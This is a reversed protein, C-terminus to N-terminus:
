EIRVTIIQYPMYPIAIAGGRVAGSRGLPEELINCFSATKMPLDLKLKATGRAGHCEYLRVIIGRGDEARKITDIVLNADDSSAFSQPAITGPAFLIPSNFRAAEAVTGAERWGGAHPFIAYSFRHRGMDAHEDPHKPARLLSMRMVNDFTAFGYKSESLISVGFGHESLDAWKHFPVEFRALDYPTNYHTPREVNGFQMEYTANMARINVPFAVKLFQHSEHWDVDCHFELRRSAADLRITQKMSSNKGIAYEFAVEARLSSGRKLSAKTAPAVDTETELHYPDVDWADWATPLDEYLKLANGPGDLSERGTSKEILSTLRGARSITARLHANELVFGKPSETASASDPSDAVQGVGYSPVNIFALKGDPQSAVEARSFGITNIPSPETSKSSLAEIARDRLEAGEAEIQAFHQKADDYVLTISSGPLIDHFQNLLLTKWLNDIDASPYEKAFGRAGALTCLFEVDHLLLESKRNGRKTQAQSTYTARHYEFYLEGILKPRDTIDKELLTFFDDSSRMQTRPLGQLDKARRLTEIMRKLPGGGGDGYGFLMLSHQSRDHDKYDRANKRLEPVNAESNYTDAPPFHALVESGDIGQWTFTHHHPKNFHNWSLKQTLFRTIGALKMIQPLQGNYGFVDPNWFERCRKGFEKQFYAQGTLFQRCLSEGSPINCDPEIWTGGVPVFQGAKVKSKMRAYLDPNRDKIVQYQYAQSCSFKYDRYEDMYRTQSSFTRECKRHTEALPWLWATDIHAHGIASLEHVRTANHRRYLNKLIAHSSKWTARDDLDFENAFRNMESLLEGQWSADSTSKEKILEDLLTQLVHYDWYLEWAFPDFAAIECQDLVFPSINKFHVDPSLHPVGFKTNCAMEVQLEIMEGGKARPIIIADPRHGHTWNLGQLVKGNQWLTAESWSIWLFDIRRGAWSKPVKATIRFWFTAWLPGFQDGLKAKRYKLKQADAYAIRDVRPSVLLRDVPQTQPYIRTKIRDGLQKIRERTYEPHRQV